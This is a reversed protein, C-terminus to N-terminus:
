EQSLTKRGLVLTTPTLCQFQASNSWGRARGHIKVWIQAHVGFGSQNIKVVLDGVQAERPDVGIIHVVGFGLM